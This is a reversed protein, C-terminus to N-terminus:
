PEPTAEAEPEPGGPIVPLCGAICGIYDSECMAACLVQRWPSDPYNEGCWVACAEYQRVCQIMCPADDAPAPGVAAQEGPPADSSVIRRIANLMEVVGDNQARQALAEAARQTALFDDTQLALDFADVSADDELDLM